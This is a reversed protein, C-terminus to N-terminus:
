GDPNSREKDNVNIKQDPSKGFLEPYDKEVAIRAMHRVWGVLAPSLGTGSKGAKHHGTTTGDKQM